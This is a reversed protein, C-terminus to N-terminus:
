KKAGVNKRTSLKIHRQMALIELPLYVYIWKVQKVFVEDLSQPNNFWNLAVVSEARLRMWRVTVRTVAAWRRKVGLHQYRKGVIFPRVEIVQNLRILTASDAQEFPRDGWSPLQTLFKERDEGMMKVPRLFQEISSGALVSDSVFRADRAYVGTWHKIRDKYGSVKYYYGSVTVTDVYSVRYQGFLQASLLLMSFLIMKM